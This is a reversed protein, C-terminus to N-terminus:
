DNQFCIRDYTAIIYITYDTRRCKEVFFFDHFFFILVYEVEFYGSETMSLYCIFSNREFPVLQLLTHM